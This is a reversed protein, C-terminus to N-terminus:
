KRKTYLNIPVPEVQPKQKPIFEKQENTYGNESTLKITMRVGNKFASNLLDVINSASNKPVTIIGESEFAIDAYGDRERAINYPNYNILDKTNKQLNM